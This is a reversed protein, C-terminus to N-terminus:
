SQIPLIRNVAAILRHRNQSEHLEPSIKQGAPLARQHHHWMPDHRLPASRHSLPPSDQYSRLDPHPHKKRALAQIRAEPHSQDHNAIRFRAPRNQTAQGTLHRIHQHLHCDADAPSTADHSEPILPVSSQCRSQVIHQDSALRTPM